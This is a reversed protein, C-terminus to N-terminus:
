KKLLTPWNLIVSVPASVVQRASNVIFRNGDPAVDYQFSDPVPVSFLPVPLGFDIADGQARVSVSTLKGDSSLYFLERGDRRWRPQTGGTTSIQRMQGVNPFGIVYIEPRGSQNSSLALWRDDPSLRANTIEFGPDFYTKPQQDSGITKIARRLAVNTQLWVFQGGDRTWGVANMLSEAEPVTARSAGGTSPVDYLNSNGGPGIGASFVIRQSDPSWIPRRLELSSAITTSTQRGIDRVWLDFQRREVNLKV